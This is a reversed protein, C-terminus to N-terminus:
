SYIRFPLGITKLEQGNKTRFTEFTNKDQHFPQNELEDLELVPAICVEEGEFVEKMWEDRTRSHFIAELEKRPFNVTFLQMQSLAAWEPKGILECLRKWFKPELAGVSLYKGDSCKYVGYNAATKGDLYNFQHPDLGSSLMSFPITLLPMLGSCMNVDVYSGKGTRGRQLLAAQLAILSMYAGAGIDALQCGPVLPKGTKDKLMSLVGAHALYNIDHGATQHNPGSQGYGTLSVYVLQPNVQKMDEYGLGWSQMAGPRFQEILVDAQTALEILKQKGDPTNYDIELLQKNHNLQHFLVSAGDVQMGSTRAYDRRRPSEIRCVSAGMQALMHTCLPGPLLRTFDLVHIDELAMM